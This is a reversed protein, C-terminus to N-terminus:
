KLGGSLSGPSFYGFLGGGGKGGGGGGGGMMSTIDGLIGLGAGWLNGSANYAALDGGAQAKGISTDAGYMANGEGTYSQNLANGLGTDVGAIGGAATNAAGVFPQLNQVYNQWGTGALGQGFRTLDMLTNGSALNGGAANKANVAALGQQLQFQYGPNNQFAATARANGAPGNMGLADALAQEGSQGYAFQKTWPDLAKAYNTELAQRGLNYQGTLDGIGRNIANIQDQAAQQGPKASFIDFIGM